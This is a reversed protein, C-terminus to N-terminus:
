VFEPDSQSVAQIILIIKHFQKSTELNIIIALKLIFVEWIFQPLIIFLQHQNYNYLKTSNVVNIANFQWTLLEIIRM